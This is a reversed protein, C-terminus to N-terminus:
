ISTLYFGDVYYVTLINLCEIALDSLLQHRGIKLNAMEFCVVFRYHRGLKDSRQVVFFNAVNWSTVPWDDNQSFGTFIQIM